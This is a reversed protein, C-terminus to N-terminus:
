RLDRIREKLGTFISKILGTQTDFSGDGQCSSLTVTHDYLILLLIVM